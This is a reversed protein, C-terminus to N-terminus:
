LDIWLTACHRNRKNEFDKIRRIETPVGDRPVTRFGLKRFASVNWFMVLSVALRARRRKLWEVRYALLATGIGMRRWAKAVTRGYLYGGGHVALIAACGVVVRGALAVFYDQTRVRRAHPSRNELHLRRIAACHSSKAKKIQVESSPYLLPAVQGADTSM